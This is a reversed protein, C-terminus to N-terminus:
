FGQNEIDNLLGLFKKRLKLRITNDAELQRLAEQEVAQYAAIHGASLGKSRALDQIQGVSNTILVKTRAAHGELMKDLEYSTQKINNACTTLTRHTRKSKQGQILQHVIRDATKLLQVIGHQDMEQAEPGEEPRIIGAINLFKLTVQGQGDPNVENLQMSSIVAKDRTSLSGRSSIEIPRELTKIILNPDGNLSTVAEYILLSVDEVSNAALAEDLFAMLREQRGTRSLVQDLENRVAKLEDALENTEAETIHPDKSTNRLQELDSKLTELEQELMEICIESETISRRLAAINAEQEPDPQWDNRAEMSKLSEEMNILSQHQNSIVSRLRDIEKENAELLEDSLDNITESSLGAKDKSGHEAEIQVVRCQFQKLENKLQMAYKNLRINEQKFNDLERQLEDVNEGSRIQAEIAEIQENNSRTSRQLKDLHSQSNDLYTQQRKRAVFNRRREPQEFLDVVGALKDVYVSARQQDRYGARYREAFDDLSALAKERFRHAKEDGERIKIKNVREKMLAVKEEMSKIEAERGFAQPMLVKIVKILHENIFQWFTESALSHELAKREIKLYATRLAVVEKHLPKIQQTIVRSGHGKTEHIQEEIYDKVHKLPATISQALMRNKRRLELCKNILYLNVFVNAIVLMLIIYIFGDSGFGNTTFEFM